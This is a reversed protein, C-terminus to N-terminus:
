LLNPLLRVIQDAVALGLAVLIPVGVLWAQWRGWRLRAWVFGAAALALAQSWLVLGVWAAADTGMAQESLPLAAPPIVRRAAPFPDGALDADVRVAGDPVLGPGDATVLTIRSSGKPVPPAQPDGDKRTGIVLFTNEGQGTVITIEEGPVLTGIRDFPGGYTFQRGMVVSVGPQGPMVTDRRHGPGKTMVAPTTGEFVVENLGISPISLVAIPIGLPQLEGARDTQAVPAVANALEARFDAWALQQSRDHQFRSLIMVQIAIGLTLAAIITLASGAM